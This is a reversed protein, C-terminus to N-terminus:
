RASLPNFTVGVVVVVVVVVLSAPTNLSPSTFYSISPWRSATTPDMHEEIVQKGLAQDLDDAGFVVGYDTWNEAYFDTTTAVAHARGFANGRKVTYVFRGTKPDFSLNQEDAAAIHDAADAKGDKTRANRRAM